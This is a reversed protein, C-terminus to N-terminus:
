AGSNVIYSACMGAHERALKRALEVDQEMIAKLIPRHKEMAAARDDISQAYRILFSRIHRYLAQYLAVFFQNDSMQVLAFHFAYDRDAFLEPDNLIGEDCVLLGNLHKIQETTRIKAAKAAIESEMLNRAEVLDNMHRGDSNPFFPILVDDLASISIVNSVFAGKGHRVRIIGLAALRALAERLTLRSVDYAQMLTQESPLRGGPPFEGDRIRGKLSEVVAEAATVKQIPITM